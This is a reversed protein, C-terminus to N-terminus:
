HSFIKSKIDTIVAFYHNTRLIKYIWSVISYEQVCPKSNGEM